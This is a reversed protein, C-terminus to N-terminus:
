KAAIDQLMKPQIVYGDLGAQKATGNARSQGKAESEGCVPSFAIALKKGSNLARLTPVNKHGLPKEYRVGRPCVIFSNVWGVFFNLNM